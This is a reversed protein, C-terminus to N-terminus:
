VSNWQFCIISMEPKWSGNKPKRGNCIGYTKYTEGGIQWSILQIEGSRKLDWLGPRAILGDTLM